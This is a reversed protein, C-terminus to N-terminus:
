MLGTLDDLIFVPFVLNLVFSLAVATSLILYKNDVHTETIECQQVIKWRITEFVCVM